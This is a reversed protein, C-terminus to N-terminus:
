GYAAPICKEFIFNSGQEQLVRGHGPLPTFAQLAGKTLSYKKQLAPIILTGTILLTERMEKQIVFLNELYDQSPSDPFLNITVNLLSPVWGRHSLGDIGLQVEASPQQGASLFNNASWGEITTAVGLLGSLAGIAAIGTGGSIDVAVNNSVATIILVSNASTISKNM